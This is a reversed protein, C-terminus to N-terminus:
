TMAWRGLGGAWIGYEVNNYDVEDKKEVANKEHSPEKHCPITLM